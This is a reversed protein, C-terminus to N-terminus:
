CLSARGYQRQPKQKKWHIDKIPMEYENGVSHQFSGIMKEGSLSFYDYKASLVISESIRDLIEVYVTYSIAYEVRIM